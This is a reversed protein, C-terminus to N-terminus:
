TNDMHERHLLPIAASNDSEDERDGVLYWIKVLDKSEAETTLM